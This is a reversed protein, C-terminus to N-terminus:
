VGHASVGYQGQQRAKVAEIHPNLAYFDFSPIFPTVM